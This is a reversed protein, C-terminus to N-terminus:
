LREAKRTFAGSKGGTKEELQVQTMVMDKQAAKLMDYITLLALQVGTLAEMEVGTKGTTTVSVICHVGCPEDLCEFQVGIHQIPLPHCLPILESTRKAGQIAAIRAVGLVDGKAANGARVLALVDPRMTIFGSAKAQRTTDAKASVDVMEAKGDQNFHSLPSNALADSSFTNMPGIILGHVPDKGAVNDTPLRCDAQSTKNCQDVANTKGRGGECLSPHAALLQWLKTLCIGVTKAQLGFPTQTTLDKLFKKAGAYNGVVRLELVIQRSLGGPEKLRGKQLPMKLRTLGDLWALKTEKSHTIWGDICKRKGTTENTNM